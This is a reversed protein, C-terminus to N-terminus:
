TGHNHPSTKRLEPRNGHDGVDTTNESGQNSGVQHVEISNRAALGPLLEVLGSSIFEVAIATLLLGLLRVM